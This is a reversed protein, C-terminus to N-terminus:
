ADEKYLFATLDLTTSVMNAATGLTKAPELKLGNVAIRSEPEEIAEVTHLVDQFTGQLTVVFPTQVLSPSKISRGVLFNALQVHHSDALATLKAMMKAGLAEPPVDWTRQKVTEVTQKALATTTQISRETEALRKRDAAMHDPPAKPGSFAYYASGAITVLSLALLIDWGSEIKFNQKSM